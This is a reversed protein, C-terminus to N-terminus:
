KKWLTYQKAYPNITSTMLYTVGYSQSVELLYSDNFLEKDKKTTPFLQVTYSKGCLDFYITLHDLKGKTNYSSGRNISDHYKNITDITILYSGDSKKMLTVCNVQKPHSVEVRM